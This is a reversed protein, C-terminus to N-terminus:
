PWNSRNKWFIVDSKIYSRWFASYSNSESIIRTKQQSQVINACDNLHNIIIPAIQFDLVSNRSIEEVFLSLYLEREFNYKPLLFRFIDRKTQHRRNNNNHLHLSALHRWGAPSQRWFCTLCWPRLVLVRGSVM